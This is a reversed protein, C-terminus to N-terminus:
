KMIVKKGNVIYIGRRGTEMMRQGALNYIVPQATLAAAGIDRIATTHDEGGFVFRAPAAESSVALAEDPVALYAIGRRVTFAGGYDAGYYFGLDAQATYSDYALKYYKYGDEAAFMGDVAAAELMNGADIAADAVERAPLYYSAQDGDSSILVGNGKPVYYGEAARSESTLDADAAYETKDLERFAMRSNNVTVTYVKVGDAFIVDNDMNSFTAYYTGDGAMARLALTSSPVSVNPIKKYLSVLQTGSSSSLYPGFYSNSTYYKIYRSNDGVNRINAYGSEAFSITWLYKNTSPIEAEKVFNTGSNYGIYGKANRLAYGNERKEIIIDADNSARCLDTANHITIDIGNGKYNSAITGMTKRGSACVILYVGGDVIEDVSTVKKYTM